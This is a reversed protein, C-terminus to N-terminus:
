KGSDIIHNLLKFIEIKSQNVYAKLSGLDKSGTEEVLLSIAISPIYSQKEELFCINVVQDIKFFLSEVKDFFIKKKNIDYQDILNSKESYFFKLFEVDRQGGGVYKTEFWKFVIKEVVNNKNENLNIRMMRIENAIEEDLINIKNLKILLKSTKKNLNNQNIIRTKKLALKEWCFSKKQHYNKFNDLTCAVPGEKGSPKLKTDVEYMFGETTKSSLTKILQRFLEVYVKQKFKEQESCKEYIFVLDLDSNATMSYNAFRGYAIVSFNLNYIKYKKAIRKEAIKLSIDFIAQALLSYEKSSRDIDIENNILAFIIQFKLFRHTQRLTDLLAEEDVINLDIKGLVNNYYSINGNLRIAFEPQLVQLIKLDDSVLNSVYGSFLFVKSLNKYVITNETLAEIYPFNFVVKNTFRLLQYLGEKKHKSQYIIPIIEDFFFYLNIKIVNSIKNNFYNKFLEITSSLKLKDSEQIEKIIKLNSNDLLLERDETSPLNIPIHLNKYLM